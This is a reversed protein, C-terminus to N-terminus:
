EFHEWLLPQEKEIHKIIKKGYIKELHIPQIGTGPRRIDVMNETIITGPLINEMAIISVRNTQLHNQETLTPNKIGTGSSKEVMKISSILNVFEDKTLSHIDDPGPKNRPDRFHREVINAGFSVSTLTGLIGSTHDSFGVPVKFKNKMTEIAKLNLEEMQSPYNSICHMLIIKENGQNRIANVSNEVEELTCMGTSLIIPKDFQAIKKLLPIHCALDSGIKYIPLELEEMIQLDKMHSPASFIPMSLSNAYNVVDKQLEKSLEFHKFIEYQSKQGTAEM